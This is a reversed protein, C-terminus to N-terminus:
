KGKNKKEEIKKRNCKEKFKGFILCLRFSNVRFSTVFKFM